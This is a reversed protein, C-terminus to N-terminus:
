FQAPLLRKALGPRKSRPDDASRADRQITGGTKDPRNGTKDPRNRDPETNDPRNRDPGTKDPRTRSSTSFVDNM